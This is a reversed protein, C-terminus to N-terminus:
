LYKNSPPSFSVPSHPRRASVSCKGPYNNLWEEAEKIARTSVKSFDTGKPFVRRIMGNQRENSGREWSSYPHCYYITTRKGKRRCSTEMGECDAFESGNDVTITRFTESFAAGLKRELRDLARVVEAATNARIKITIEDRTVRETLMLLREGKKKTSAVTDMEWDGAEERNNIEPSRQEISLGPCSRAARRVRNQKKKKNPKIPLDKNTVGPIIGLTIYRYLTRPSIRTDFELGLVGIEGLAAEPSRYGKRLVSGLYNAYNHDKGIKLQPGKGSFTDEYKDQAIDALYCEYDVLDSTRQQGWGRKIERYITSIHRGLEDAIRRPTWGAKLWDEIKMRERWQLHKYHEGM